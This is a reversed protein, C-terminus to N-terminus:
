GFTVTIEDDNAGSTTAQFTLDDTVIGARDGEEPPSMLAAKPCAITLTNGAATGIAAQFSFTQSSLHAGYWDETAIPVAEPDIEITVEREVIFFSHYGSVNNADQRPSVTNKIFIVCKSVKYPSGGVSLVGGAFRPPVVTPFTPALIATDTKPQWIGDFTWECMPVKGFECTIKCSGQAGSITALRGDVYCGLTLTAPNGTVPSFIGGSAPVPFGVGPLLVTSWFPNTGATGSGALETEFTFTGKRAGAVPVFPSFSTMGPRQETPIEAKMKPNFAIMAANTAALAVPTGTSTEIAAAIVRRRSLKPTDVAM